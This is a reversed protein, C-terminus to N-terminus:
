GDEARGLKGADDDTLKTGVRRSRHAGSRAREHALSADDGAADESPEECLTSPAFRSRFRGFGRTSKGGGDQSAPREITVREREKLSLVSSFRRITRGPLSGGPALSRMRSEVHGLIFDDEGDGDPPSTSLAANGSGATDPRSAPADADAKARESLSLM